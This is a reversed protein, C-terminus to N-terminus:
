ERGKKNRGGHLGLGVQDCEAGDDAAFDRADQADPALRQQRRRDRHRQVEEDEAVHDAAADALHLGADAVDIEDHGAQDHHAHDLVGVAVDGTREEARLEAAIDLLHQHRRHRAPHDQRAVDGAGDHAAEDNASAPKTL